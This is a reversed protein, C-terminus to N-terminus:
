LCDTYYRDSSDTSFFTVMFYVTGINSLHTTPSLHSTWLTPSPGQLAFLSMHMYNIPQTAM